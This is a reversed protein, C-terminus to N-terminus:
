WFSSWFEFGVFSSRISQLNTALFPPIWWHHDMGRLKVMYDSIKPTWVNGVAFSVLVCKKGAQRCLMQAPCFPPGPPHGHRYVRLCFLLWTISPPPKLRCIPILWILVSWFHLKGPISHFIVRASSGFGVWCSQMELTQFSPCCTLQSFEWRFRPFPTVGQRFDGLPQQGLFVFFTGRNDWWLQGVDLQQYISPSM